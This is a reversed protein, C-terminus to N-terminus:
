GRTTKQPWPAAMFHREVYPPLRGRYEFAQRYDHESLSLIETFRELVEPTIASKGSEVNSVYSLGTGIQEAVDRLRLGRQNRASRLLRGLAKRQYTM